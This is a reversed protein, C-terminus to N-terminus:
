DFHNFVLWDYASVSIIFRIVLSHKRYYFISIVVKLSFIRTRLKHNKSFLYKWQSCIFFFKLVCMFIYISMTQLISFTSVSIFCCCAFSTIQFLWLLCDITRHFCSFFDIPFIWLEVIHHWTDAHFSIPFPPLLASLSPTEIHNSPSIAPYPKSPELPIYTTTSLTHTFTRTSSTHNARAASEWQCHARANRQIRNARRAPTSGHAKKRKESGELDKEDKM